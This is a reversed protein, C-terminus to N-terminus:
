GIVASLIEVPTTAVITLTNLVLKGSVAVSGQQTPLALHVLGDSDCFEGYAATGSANASEDRASISLTLQGTTGNVTGAPDSLPIEALLVDASDRIRITANSAGADLLALFATHAAIKAAASYTATSPAPM